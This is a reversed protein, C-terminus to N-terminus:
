VGKWGMQEMANRLALVQEFEMEAVLMKWCFAGGGRPWGNFHLPKWGHEQAARLVCARM